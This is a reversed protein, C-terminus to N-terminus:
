CFIHWFPYGSSTGFNQFKVLFGAMSRLPDRQPGRPLGLDGFHLGLGGFHLGLDGFHSGSSEM